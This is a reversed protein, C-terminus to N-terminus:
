RRIISGTTESSQDAALTTASCRDNSRHDTSSGRSGHQSSAGAPQTLLHPTIAELRQGQPLGCATLPTAAAAQPTNRRRDRRDRHGDEIHEAMARRAPQSCCCGIFASTREQGGVQGM